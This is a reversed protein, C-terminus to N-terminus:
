RHIYKGLLQLLQLTPRLSALGVSALLQLNPRLSALGVSALKFSDIVGLGGVGERGAIGDRLARVVRADDFGYVDANWGRQGTEGVRGHVHRPQAFGMREAAEGYQRNAM